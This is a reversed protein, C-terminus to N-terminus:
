AIPRVCENLFTGVWATTLAPELAPPEPRSKALEGESTAVDFPEALHEGQLAPEMIKPDARARFPSEDMAAREPFRKRPELNVTSPRVQDLM